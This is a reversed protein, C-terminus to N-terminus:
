DNELSIHSNKQRAISYHSIKKRALLPSVDIEEKKMREEFFSTKSFLNGHNLFIVLSMKKQM